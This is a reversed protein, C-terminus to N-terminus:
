ADNKLTHLLRKTYWAPEMWGHDLYWRDTEALGKQLPWQPEYHLEQRMPMIDCNWNRQKLINYKDSNLTSKTHFAKAWAGCVGCVGRLLWLPARFTFLGKVGLDKKVLENFEETTYTNGDSLHYIKGQINALNGQQEQAIAAFIAGVVDRVYVFTLTQKQWGATFALHRYISKIQIFYDKERPGYVGTPRMIVCPFDSLSQLFRESKVKSRAYATNPQPEDTAALPTCQGDPGPERIPGLVSLSSLYVFLRPTIGAQRLANVLNVTCDYNNRDFDAQDRGQTAGAAHVVYDWGGMTQKAEQLQQLLTQPNTLDLTQYDLQLDSLYKRSSQQRMGAWTHMGLEVAKECIFSGIFGSAGTVLIKTKGAM